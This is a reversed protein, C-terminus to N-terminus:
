PAAHPAQHKTRIDSIRQKLVDEKLAAYAQSIRASEQLLVPLKELVKRGVPSRYFTLLDKLEAESFERVYLAVIAHNIQAWDVEHEVWDLFVARVEQVNEESSGSKRLNNIVTDVMGMAANKFIAPNSTLVVLDAAAKEHSGVEAALVPTFILLAALLTTKM